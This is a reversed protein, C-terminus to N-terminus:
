KGPINRAIIIELFFGIFYILYPSIIYIYIQIHKSPCYKIYNHHNHQIIKMSSISSISSIPQYSSATITKHTIYALIYAIIIPILMFQPSLSGLKYVRWDIFMSMAVFMPFFCNSLIKIMIIIINRKGSRDLNVQPDKCTM